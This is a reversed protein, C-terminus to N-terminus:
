STTTASSCGGTNSDSNAQLIAVVSGCAKYATVPVGINPVVESFREQTLWPTTSTKTQFVFRRGLYENKVTTVRYKQGRTVSDKGAYCRDIVARDEKPFTSVFRVKNKDGSAGLGM